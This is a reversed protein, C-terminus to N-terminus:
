NFRWSTKATPTSLNGPGGIKKEYGIDEEKVRKGIEYGSTPNTCPM